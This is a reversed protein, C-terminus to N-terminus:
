PATLFTSCASRRPEPRPNLVRHTHLTLTHSKSIQSRANVGTFEVAHFQISFLGGVTDPGPLAPKSGELTNSAITFSTTAEPKNCGREEPHLSRQSPAPKRCIAQFQTRSEGLLSSLLPCLRRPSSCSQPSLSTPVPLPFPDHCRQWGPRSPCLPQPLGRPSTVAPQLRCLPYFPSCRGGSAKRRHQCIGCSAAAGCGSHRARQSNRSYASDRFMQLTLADHPPSPAPQAPGPQEQFPQSSLWSRLGVPHCSQGTGWGAQSMAWPPQRTARASCRGALLPGFARIAAHVPQFTTDRSGGGRQLPGFASRLGQREGRPTTPTLIWTQTKSRLCFGM